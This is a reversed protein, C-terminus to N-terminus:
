AGAPIFIRVIVFRFERMSILFNFHYRWGAIRIACLFHTTFIATGFLNHRQRFSFMFESIPFNGRRRSAFGFARFCSCALQAAIRFGTGNGSFLMIEAIPNLFRMGITSMATCFCAKASLTIKRFCALYLCKSMCPITPMGRGFFFFRCFPVAATASFRFFFSKIILRRLFLISCFDFISRRNPSVMQSILFVFFLFPM